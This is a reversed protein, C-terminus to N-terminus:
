IDMMTFHLIFWESESRAPGRALFYQILTGNCKSPTNCRLRKISGIYLQLNYLMDFCYVIGIFPITNLSYAFYGM